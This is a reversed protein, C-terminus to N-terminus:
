GGPSPQGISALNQRHGGRKPAILCRRSFLFLCEWSSKGNATTIASLLETLKEAMCARSAKPIRKIVRVSFRGLNFPYRSDPEFTSAPSTNWPTPLSPSHNSTTDADIMVKPQEPPHGSGKCRDNFPSHIKVKGDLRLPM